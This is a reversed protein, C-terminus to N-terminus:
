TNTLWDDTATTSTPKTITVHEIPTSLTITPTATLVPNGGGAVSELEADSLEAPNENTLGERNVVTKEESM